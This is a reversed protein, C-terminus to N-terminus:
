RWGYSRRPEYDRYYREPEVRPAPRDKVSQLIEQLIQRQSVQEAKIETQVKEVTTLKEKFVAQKVVVDEVTEIKEKLDGDAFTGTTFTGGSAILALAGIVSALRTETKHEM